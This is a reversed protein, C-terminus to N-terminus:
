PLVILLVQLCLLLLSLLLTDRFQELGLEDPVVVVPRCFLVLILVGSGLSLCNARLAVALSSCPRTVEVQVPYGLWCLFAEQIEGYRAGVSVLPGERLYVVVFHALALIQEDGMPELLFLWPMSLVPIMFIVDIVLLIHLWM